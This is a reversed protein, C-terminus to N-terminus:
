ASMEKNRSKSNDTNYSLSYAESLKKTQWILILKALELSYILKWLSFRILKTYIHKINAIIHSINYNQFPLFLNRVKKTYQIQCVEM